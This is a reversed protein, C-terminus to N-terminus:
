AKTAAAQAAQAAQAADVKAARHARRQKEAVKPSTAAANRQFATAQEAARKADNDKAEKEAAMAADTKNASSSAQLLSSQEKLHCHGLDSTWLCHSGPCEDESTM